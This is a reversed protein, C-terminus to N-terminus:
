RQWSESWVRSTRQQEANLEARMSAVFSEREGWLQERKAQAGVPRMSAPACALADLACGHRPTPLAGAGRGEM